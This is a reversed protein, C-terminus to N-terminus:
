LIYSLKVTLNGQFDEFKTYMKFNPGLTIHKGLMVGCGISFTLPLTLDVNYGDVVPFETGIACSFYRNIFSKSTTNIYEIFAPVSNYLEGKYLGTSYIGGGIGVYHNNNERIGFTVTLGYHENSTFKLDENCSMGGYDIAPNFSFKTQSFCNIFCFCLVIISIIRKM